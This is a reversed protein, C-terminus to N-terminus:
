IKGKRKMDLAIAVAQDQPYGENMLLAIKKSVAEDAAHTAKAGPRSYNALREIAAVGRAEKKRMGEARAKLAAVDGTAIPEMGRNDNWMYLTATTGMAYPKEIMYSVGNITATHEIIPKGHKKTQTAEWRDMKAKAGPRSMLGHQKLEAAANDREKRYHQVDMTLERIDSARGSQEALRLSQVARNLYESAERYRAQMAERDGASMAMKAKAGPRSARMAVEIVEYADGYLAYANHKADAENMAETNWLFRNGTRKSKLVVTFRPYLSAHTSKIGTKAFALSEVKRKMDAESGSGLERGHMDFAKFVSPNDPDQYVQGVQGNNIYTMVAAKKSGYKEMTKRWTGGGAVDTTTVKRVTSYGMKAKAGSRAVSGLREMIAKRIENTESM